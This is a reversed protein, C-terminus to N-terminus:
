GATASTSRIAARSRPLWAGATPRATACAASGTMDSDYWTGARRRRSVLRERRFADLLRRRQLCRFRGRRGQLHPRASQARRRGQWPRLGCLPRCQRPQRGPGRHPLPRPRGPARRLRLRLETRRWLHRPGDRHGWHGIVRGWIGDPTRMAATTAPASCSPTAAWASMCRTSSGVAMSRQRWRCRRM